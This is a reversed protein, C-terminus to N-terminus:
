CTTMKQKIGCFSPFFSYEASEAILPARFLCSVSTEIESWKPKEIESTARFCEEFDEM